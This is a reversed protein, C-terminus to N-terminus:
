VLRGDPRVQAAPHLRTRRPPAPVSSTACRCRPGRPRRRHAAPPLSLERPRWPPTAFRMFVPWIVVIVTPM